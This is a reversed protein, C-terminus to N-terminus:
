PRKLYSNMDSAHFTPSRDSASDRRRSIAMRSEERKDERLEERSPVDTGFVQDVSPLEDHGNITFDIRDFAQQIAVNARCENRVHAALQSLDVGSRIIRM